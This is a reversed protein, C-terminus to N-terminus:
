MGTLHHIGKKCQFCRTDNPLVMREFLDTMMTAYKGGHTIMRNKNETVYLNTASNLGEQRSKNVSYEMIEAAVKHALPLAIAGRITCLWDTHNCELSVNMSLGGTDGVYSLNSKKYPSTITNSNAKLFANSYGNSCSSCGTNNMSTYVSPFTSNYGFFLQLKRRSSKYTANVPVTVVEDSVATIGITDIIKGQLLDIVSIEVDGNYQAQLSIDSVFLDLYSEDNCLEIYIGKLKNAAAKSVINEQTKGLRLNKIVSFVKFKDQFNSLIKYKLERKALELKENFLDIGTNYAKGAIKDLEAEDIGLENIYIDPTSQSCGRVGIINDWCDTLTSYSM